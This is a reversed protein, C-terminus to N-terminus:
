TQSRNAPRHCYDLYRSAEASSTSKHERLAFAACPSGVLSAELIPTSKSSTSSCPLRSAPPLSLRHQYLVRSASEVSLSRFLTNCTHCEEDIDRPYIEIHKVIACVVSMSWRETSYAPCPL